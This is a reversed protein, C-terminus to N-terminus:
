PLVEKGIAQNLQALATLYAAVLNVYSIQVSRYEQQAQLFDVLSAGGRQYSFTVTDRVRTAQALYRDRYPQLLAVTSIV